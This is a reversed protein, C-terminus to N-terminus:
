SSDKDMQIEKLHIDLFPIAIDFPMKLHWVQYRDCVAADSLVCPQHMAGPNSALVGHNSWPSSPTDGGEVELFIFVSVRLSPSLPYVYLQPYALFRSSFARQYGSGLECVPYLQFCEHWAPPGELYGHCRCFACRAPSNVLNVWFRECFDTGQSSLSACWNGSCAHPGMKETMWIIILKM